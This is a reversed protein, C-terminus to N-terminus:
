TVTKVHGVHIVMCSYEVLPSDSGRFNSATVHLSWALQEKMLNFLLLFKGASTFMMYVYSLCYLQCLCICSTWFRANGGNTLQYISQLMYILTM